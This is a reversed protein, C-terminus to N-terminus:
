GKPGRSWNTATTFFVPGSASPYTSSICHSYLFSFPVTDIVSGIETSRIMSWHPILSVLSGYNSLGFFYGLTVSPKGGTYREGIAVALHPSDASARPRKQIVKTPRRNHRLSFRLTPERGVRGSKQMRKGMRREANSSNPAPRRVGSVTPERCPM